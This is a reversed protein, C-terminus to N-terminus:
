SARSRSTRSPSRPSSPTTRAAPRLRRDSPGPSRRPAGARRRRARRAGAVSRRAPDIQGRRDRRHPHDARRFVRSGVSRDARHRPDFAPRAHRSPRLRDPRFSPTTSSPFGPSRSKGAAVPRREEAPQLRGQVVRQRPLQPRAGRRRDAGRRHHRSRSLGRDPSLAGGACHRTTQYDTLVTRFRNIAATYNRRNLYFRGISM